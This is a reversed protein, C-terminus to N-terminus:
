QEDGEEQPWWLIVPRGEVTLGVSTHMPWDGLTRNYDYYASFGTTVVDVGLGAIYGAGAGPANGVAGGVGPGIVYKAGAAIGLDAATVLVDQNLTVMPPLDPHPREFLYNTGYFVGSLYTVGVDWAATTEEDWGPTFIQILEGIDFVFGVISLSVGLRQFFAPRPLAPNSGPPMVIFDYAPYSIVV